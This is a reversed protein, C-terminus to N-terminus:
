WGNMSELDMCSWPMGVGHPIGESTGERLHIWFQCGLLDVM